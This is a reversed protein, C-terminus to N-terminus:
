GVRPPGGDLALTGATAGASGHRSFRGRAGGLPCNLPALSGAHRRKGVGSHAQEALLGQSPSQRGRLLQPDRLDQVPGAERIELDRAAPAEIAGNPASDLTRPLPNARELPAHLRRETESQATAQEDPRPRDVVVEDAPEDGGGGPVPDLDEAQG